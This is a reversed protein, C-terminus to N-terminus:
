FVNYSYMECIFYGNIILILVVVNTKYVLLLLPGLIMGPPSGLGWANIDNM